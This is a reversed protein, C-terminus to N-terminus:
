YNPASLCQSTQFNSLYTAPSTKFANYQTYFGEDNATPNPTGGNWDNNDVVGNAAWDLWKSSVEPFKARFSSSSLTLYGNLADKFSGKAPPNTPNLPDYGSDNVDVKGDGNWDLECHGALKAIWYTLDTQIQGTVKNSLAFVRADGSMGNVTTIRNATGSSLGKSTLYAGLTQMKGATTGDDYWMCANCEGLTCITGAVKKGDASVYANVGSTKFGCNGLNQYTNTTVNYRFLGGAGNSDWTGVAYTGNWNVDQVKAVGPPAQTIKVPTWAGNLWRWVAPSWSSSPPNAYFGGITTGNAAIAQAFNDHSYGSPPPIFPLQTRTYTGSSLTWLTAYQNHVYTTPYAPNTSLELTTANGVIKSGDYNSDWAMPPDSVDYGENAPLPLNKWGGAPTWVAAKDTMTSAGYAGLVVNGRPSM